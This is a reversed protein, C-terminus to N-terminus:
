GGIVEGDAGVPLRACRCGIHTGTVPRPGSDIPFQKGDLPRCIDDVSADKATQWEETEIGASKHALFNGEDFILTTENAAILSARSKGFMPEIAETLSPLGQRGLGSEQWSVVAKNFNSRTTQSLQEWWQNSYRRSFDLVGQNVLDMDVPLGLGLNLEAAALAGKRANDMGVIVVRTRFDDWFDIDTLLDGPAKAGLGFLAKRGILKKADTFTREFAANLESAFTEEIALREEEGFDARENNVVKVAKYDPDSKKPKKRRVRHRAKAGVPDTDTATINPTIDGDTQLADFLEPSLLEEDLMIQRAAETTLIGSNVHDDLTKGRISALNAEEVEGQIDQEDYSFVVNSPIIGQFNFAYQIMNMFFAPGKGRSKQHLTQSQSSTGLNGGPLPAFDQYDAGFGLALQNIYWKMAVEIDFGEPLSKLDITDVSVTATPDLSAIVAPIIYRTMGRGAQTLKHQNMADTISASTVGSVLHIANPNDGSVKENQYVSIDRLYQAARLIRSVACLQMGNMSEIPSPFEALAIIQYWALQHIVGNRDWYNVPNDPDGTRRCKGADLHGLGLVPSTASDAQRIVEIFAGNDQSFLDTCLKVVFSQWGRGLDAVHLMDQITEVTEPPGELTWSFAANRITISYLASALIPETPWFSRLQRDRAQPNTGWPTISDAVTALDIVLSGGAGASPFMTNLGPQQVSRSIAGNNSTM